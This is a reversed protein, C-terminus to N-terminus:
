PLLHFKEGSLAEVGPLVEVTGNPLLVRRTLGDSAGLVLALDLGAAALREANGLSASTPQLRLGTAPDWSLLVRAGTLDTALVLAGGAVPAADLIQAMPLAPQDLVGPVGLEVRTLTINQALVAAGDTAAATGAVPAPVVLALEDDVLVLRLPDVALPYPRVWGTSLDYVTLAGPLGGARRTLVLLRSGQLVMDAVSQDGNFGATFPMAASGTILDIERVLLDDEAVFATRGDNSVAWRRGSVPQGLPEIMLDNYRDDLFQLRGAPPLGELGLADPRVIVFAPGAATSHALADGNADLRYVVTPRRDWAQASRVELAGGERLVYGVMGDASLALGRVPTTGPLAPQLVTGTRLDIRQWGVTTPLVVAPPQVLLTCEARAASGLVSFSLAIIQGADDPDDLPVSLELLGSEDAVGLVQLVDGRPSAEGLVGSALYERVSPPAQAAMELEILIAAGPSSGELVLALEGGALPFSHHVLLEDSSQAAVQGSVVLLLALLLPALRM